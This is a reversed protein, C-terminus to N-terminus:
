RGVFDAAFSEAPLDTGAAVDTAPPSASSCVIFFFFGFRLLVLLFGRCSVSVAPSPGVASPPCAASALACLISILAQTYHVIFYM